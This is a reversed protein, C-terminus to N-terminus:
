AFPARRWTRHVIPAAAFAAAGIRGGPLVGGSQTRHVIPAAAFAAAWDQWVVM